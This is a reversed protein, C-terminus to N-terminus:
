SLFIYFNLKLGRLDQLTLYIFPVNNQFLHLEITHKSIAKYNHFKQTIARLPKKAGSRRHLEFIILVKNLLM